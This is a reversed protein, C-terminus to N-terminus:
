KGGAAKQIKALTATRTRVDKIGSAVQTALKPNKSAIDSYYVAMRDYAVHDPNSSLWQALPEVGAQNAWTYLITGYGVPSISAPFVARTNVSDIWGIAKVPDYNTLQQAANRVTEYNVYPQGVHQDVWAIGAEINGTLYARRVKITALDRFVETLYSEKLTGANKARELMGDVLAEAREIGATRVITPVLNATYKRRDGVPAEELFSVALDPEAM